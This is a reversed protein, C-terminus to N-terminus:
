ALDEWSVVCLKPRRLALPLKEIHDDLFILQEDFNKSMDAAIRISHPNTLVTRARELGDRVFDVTLTQELFAVNDPHTSQDYIHGDTEWLAPAGGGSEPTWPAFIPNDRDDYMLCSIYQLTCVAFAEEASEWWQTWFEALHPFVVMFSGLAYFWDYPAEDWGSHSASSEMSMREFILASVYDSLAQFQEENLFEPYPPKAAFAAMVHESYGGYAKSEGTLNCGWIRVIEPLVFRFFAPQVECFQYSEVYDFLDVGEAPSTIERAPRTLLSGNYLGRQLIEAPLGRTKLADVLQKHARESKTKWDPEAKWSSM